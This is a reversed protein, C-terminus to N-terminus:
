EATRNPRRSRCRHRAAVIGLAGTGLLALTGPEPIPEPQSFVYELQFDAGELEIPSYAGPFQGEPPFGVFGARATGRGVLATTFVPEDEPGPNATEFATVFGSFTFPLTVTQRGYGTLIVSPTVFTGGSPGFGFFLEPHHVGNFVAEGVRTDTPRWAGGLDIPTGAPFPWNSGISTFFDETATRVLFDDGLFAIRATNINV